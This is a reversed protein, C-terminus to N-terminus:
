PPNLNRSAFRRGTRHDRMVLKMLDLQPRIPFPFWLLFRSCKHNHRSRRLSARRDLNVWAHGIYPILLISHVASRRLNTSLQYPGIFTCVNDLYEVLWEQDKRGLVRTSAFETKGLLRELRRPFHPSSKELDDIQQLFENSPRYDKRLAKRLSM